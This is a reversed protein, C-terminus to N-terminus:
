LRSGGPAHVGLDRCLLALCNGPLVLGDASAGQFPSRERCGPAFARPSVSLGKFSSM